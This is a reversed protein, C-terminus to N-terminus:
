DEEPASVPTANVPRELASRNTEPGTVHFVSAPGQSANRSPTHLTGSLPHKSLVSPPKEEAPGPEKSEEDEPPELANAPMGYLSALLPIVENRPCGARLAAEYAWAANDARGMRVYLAGLAMYAEQKEKGEAKKAGAELLRAALFARREDVALLHGYLLACRSPVNGSLARERVLFLLQEQDKSPLSSRNRAMMVVSVGKSLLTEVEDERGELLLTLTKPLSASCAELAQQEQMRRADLILPALTTELGPDLDVAREYCRSAEQFRGGVYAVHGLAAHGLACDPDLEIAEKYCAEAEKYEGSRYHRNGQELLHATEGRFFESRLTGCGSAVFLCLLTAAIWGLMRFTQRADM